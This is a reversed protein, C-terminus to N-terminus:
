IKNKSDKLNYYLALVQVSVFSDDLSQRNKRNKPVKPTQARKKAMWETKRKRRSADM